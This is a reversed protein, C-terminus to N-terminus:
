PAAPADAPALAPVPESPPPMVQPMVDAPPVNDNVPTMGQGQEPMPPVVPRADAAPPMDLPAAEVPGPPPATPGETPQGAQDVTTVTGTSEDPLAAPMTAIAAGEAVPVAGEQTYDLTSLLMKGYPDEFLDVGELTGHLISLISNDQGKVNGQYQDLSTRLRVYAIRNYRNQRMDYELDLVEKQKRIIYAQAVHEDVKAFDYSFPQKLILMLNRPYDKIEGTKGCIDRSLSNGTIEMRRIKEFSTGDVLYFGGRETDYRGLRVPLIFEFKNNYKDREKKLVERAANRIKAWEFDDNVFRQYLDCENILMYNDVARDDDLDFVRLRWYLKSLNAPTGKVFQTAFPDEMVTVDADTKEPVLENPGLLDPDVAEPDHTVIVPAPEMGAQQRLPAPAPIVAVPGATEPVPETKMEAVPKVPASVNDQARVAAVPTLALFCLASFAPLLLLRTM